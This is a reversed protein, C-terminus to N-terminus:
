RSDDAPLEMRLFFRDWCDDPNQTESWSTEAAREDKRLPILATPVFGLRHYLRLAPTEDAAVHLVIRDLGGRRAWAILCSLGEAMLGPPAREGRLIDCIEFGRGFDGLGLHGVTQGDCEVLFLIRDEAVIVGEAWHRAGDETSTFLKLFPRLNAARWDALTRALGPRGLTAADLARLQGSPFPLIEGSAKAAAIARVLPHAGTM